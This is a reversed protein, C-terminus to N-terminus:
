QIDSVPPQLSPTIKGGERNKKRQKQIQTPSPPPAHSCINYFADCDARTKPIVKNPNLAAYSLYFCASFYLPFCM